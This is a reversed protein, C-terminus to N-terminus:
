AGLDGPQETAGLDPAVAHQLPLIVAVRQVPQRHAAAGAEKM